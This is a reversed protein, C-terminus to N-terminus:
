NKANLFDKLASIPGIAAPDKGHLLALAISLWDMVICLHLLSELLTNGDGQM